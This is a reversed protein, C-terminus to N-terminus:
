KTTRITKTEWKEYIGSLETIVYQIFSSLDDISNNFDVTKDTRVKRIENLLNTFSVLHNFEETFSKKWTEINSRFYRKRDGTKTVYEIRKAVLLFNIGNSTASKSLNLTERIEDFTLEIKDSVLLLASIRASAPQLGHECGFVGVREILELQKDSLPVINNRCIKM